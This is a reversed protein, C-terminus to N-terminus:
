LLEMELNLKATALERAAHEDRQDKAIQIGQTYIKLAENMAEKRELLKGLHYYAGVYQVDHAILFQYKELAHELEGIKEFEKALAFLLFSDTPSAELMEKLQELRNTEKKSM